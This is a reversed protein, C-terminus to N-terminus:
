AKAAIYSSNYESARCGKYTQEASLVEPLASHRYGLRPGRDWGRFGTNNCSEATNYPDSSPFLAHPPPRLDEVAPFWWKSTKPSRCNHLTSLNFGVMSWYFKM